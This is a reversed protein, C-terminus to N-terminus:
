TRFKIEGPMPMMGSSQPEFKYRIGFWGTIVDGISEYDVRDGGDFCQHNALNDPHQPSSFLNHRRFGARLGSDM